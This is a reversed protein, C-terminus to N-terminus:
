RPPVMVIAHTVKCVIETFSEQCPRPREVARIDWEM